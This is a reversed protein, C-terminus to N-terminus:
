PMTGATFAKADTFVHLSSMTEAETGMRARREGAKMGHWGGHADPEEHWGADVSSHDYWSSVADDYQGQLDYVELEDQALVMWGPSGANFDPNQFLCVWGSPCADPGNVEHAVFWRYPGPLQEAPRASRASVVVPADPADLAVLSGIPTLATIHGGLLLTLCAGLVTGGISAVAVPWTRWRSGPSSRGGTACCASEVTGDAPPPATVGPLLSDIERRSDTGDPGAGEGPVKRAAVAQRRLAEWFGPDRPQHPLRQEPPLTAARRIARGELSAVFYRFVRPDSPISRGSFWDSLTAAGLRVPPRQAEAQQVLSRYPPSGAARHLRRLEESLRV